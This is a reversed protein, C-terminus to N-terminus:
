RHHRLAAWPHTMAWVRFARISAPALLHPIPKPSNAAMWERTPRDTTSTGNPAFYVTEGMRIGSVFFGSQGPAFGPLFASPPMVAELREVSLFAKPAMRPRSLRRAGM